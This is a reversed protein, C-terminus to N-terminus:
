YCVNKRISEKTQARDWPCGNESRLIKIIEHLDYFDFRTKEVLPLKDIVLACTYNYEDDFDSEYLKIKSFTGNIFKYCPIEDGFQDSIALKVESAMYKSDVDYVVLPLSLRKDKIDYASTACYSGGIGLKGLYYDAKSVGPYVKVNKCKQLIIQCSADDKVDGDVLYVVPDLISAMIVQKALNKALTDFNRSKEYIFDLPTVEIGREIIDKGTTSLATRLLVKKANRIKEFASISIDGPSIGLGVLTIMM